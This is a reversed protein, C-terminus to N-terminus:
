DNAGCRVVSGLVTQIAVFGSRDKPATESKDSNAIRNVIHDWTRSWNAESNPLLFFEIAKAVGNPAITFSRLKKYEDFTLGQGGISTIYKDSFKHVTDENEDIHAVTDYWGCALAYVAERQKTWIEKTAIFGAIVTMGLDAPSIAERYGRRFAEFRQQSGVASVVVDKSQLSNIGAELSSNIIVFNEKKEGAADIFALLANELVSGEPVVVKKGKLQALFAKRAADIPMEAKLQDLTKIDSNTFVGLGRFEWGPLVFMVDRGLKKLNESKSIFEDLTSFALDVARGSIADYQAEWAVNVFELELGYKQFFGNEMGVVPYVTDVFPPATMRLKYKPTSDQALATELQTSHLGILLSFAVLFTYFSSISKLAVNTRMHPVGRDDFIIELALSSKAWNGGLWKVVASFQM